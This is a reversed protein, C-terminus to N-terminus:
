IVLNENKVGRSAHPSLGTCSSPPITDNLKFPRFDSNKYFIMFKLAGLKM